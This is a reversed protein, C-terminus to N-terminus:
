ELRKRERNQQHDSRRIEGNAQLIYGPGGDMDYLEYFETEGGMYELSCLCDNIAMKEKETFVEVYNDQIDAAATRGMLFISMVCLMAFLEIYRKM